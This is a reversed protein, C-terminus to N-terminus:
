ILLLLFIFWFLAPLSMCMPLPLSFNTPFTQRVATRTNTRRWVALSLFHLGASYTSIPFFSLRSLSAWSSRGFHCVCPCLLVSSPRGDLIEGPKGVRSRKLPEERERERKRGSKKMISNHTHTLSLTLYVSSHRTRICDLALAVRAWDVVSYLLRFTPIMKFRKSFPSIFSFFLKPSQQTRDSRCAIAFEGVHLCVCSSVSVHAHSPWCYFLCSGFYLHPSFYLVPFYSVLIKSRENEKTEKERGQASKKKGIINRTYGPPHFHIVTKGNTRLLTFIFRFLFFLFFSVLFFFFIFLFSGYYFLLFFFLRSM